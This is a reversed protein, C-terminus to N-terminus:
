RTNWRAIQRESEEVGAQVNVALYLRRAEEWLALARETDGSEGKLLAFGRITNALDLLPTQEDERYIALAEEYCSHAEDMAGGGRLADALHRITHAFRRKDQEGRRIEVAERYAQIAGPLNKLDREIQALGALSSALLSTESSTRSLATAQSFKEKACSLEGDRRAKYGAEILREITNSM